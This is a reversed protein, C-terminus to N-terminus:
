QGQKPGMKARDMAEQFDRPLLSSRRWLLYILKSLNPKVVRRFWRESIHKRTLLHFISGSAVYTAGFRQALVSLSKPTYFSIHQGHEPGFYWWSDVPPVPDPLLETTLFISDTLKFLLNVKEAPDSLHEFVEFSTALEYRSAGSLDAEFGQAFLNSCHADSHWFDYGIDRMWRTFVGYGGGFDVFPGDPDFFVDIVAKTAASNATPRSVGGLDYATMPHGYSEALWYPDETQIFGCSACRYYQVPYKFLVTAADFPIVAAQCCRCREGKM